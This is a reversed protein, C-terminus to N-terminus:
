VAQGITVDAQEIKGGRAYRVEVSTGVRDASLLAQLADLHATPEGDLALLVDGQVLGGSAAPGDAEVSMLMLGTEQEVEAQLADPLRVAQIGVGLYGRPM